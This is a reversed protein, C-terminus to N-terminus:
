SRTTVSVGLRLAKDLAAQMEPTIIQCSEEQQHIALRDLRDLEALQRVCRSKGMQSAMENVVFEAHALSVTAAIERVEKVSVFYPNRTM